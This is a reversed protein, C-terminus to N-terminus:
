LFLDKVDSGNFAIILKIFSGTIKCYFFFRVM